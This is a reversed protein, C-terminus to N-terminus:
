LSSARGPKWGVVNFSKESQKTNMFNQVVPMTVIRQIVCQLYSLVYVSILVCEVAGINMALILSQVSIVKVLVAPTM